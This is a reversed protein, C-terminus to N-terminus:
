STTPRSHYYRYKSEWNRFPEELSESRQLDDKSSGKMVITQWDDKEDYVDRLYASKVAVEFQRSKPSIHDVFSFPHHLFHTIESVYPFIIPDIGLDILKKFFAKSFKEKAIPDNNEAFVLWLSNIEQFESNFLKIANTFTTREVQREMISKENDDSHWFLFALYSEIVKEIVVWEHSILFFYFDVPYEVNFYIYRDHLANHSGNAYAHLNKNVLLEEQTSPYFTFCLANDRVRFYKVAKMRELLDKPSIGAYDHISMNPIWANGRFHDKILFNVFRSFNDESSKIKEELEADLRISKTTM